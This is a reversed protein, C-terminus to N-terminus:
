HRIYLATNAIEEICTYINAVLVCEQSSPHVVRMHRATLHSRLNERCRTHLHSDEANHRRTIQYFHVSLQWSPPLLSRQCTPLCRDSQVNNYVLLCGDEYCYLTRRLRSVDKIDQLTMVTSSLEINPQTQGDTIASASANSKYPLVIRLGVAWM